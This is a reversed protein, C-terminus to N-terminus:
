RIDDSVAGLLAVEYVEAMPLELGVSRLTITEPSGRTATFSWTGDPERRHVHAAFGDEYIEVIEAVGEVDQLERRKQERARWAHLDSPSVIEFVVRPIGGCRITVDPIRATSRKQQKTVVGSGVESRCRNLNGRLRTVLSATLGAIIAGHEPSPASQGVVQGDILEYRWATGFDRQDTALFEQATWLRGAQHTTDM